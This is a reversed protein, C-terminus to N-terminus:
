HSPNAEWGLLSKRAAHIICLIYLGVAGVKNHM